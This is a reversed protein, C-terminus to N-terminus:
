AFSCSKWNQFQMVVEALSSVTARETIYVAIALMIMISQRVANGPGLCHAM